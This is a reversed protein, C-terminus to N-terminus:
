MPTLNPHRGTPDDLVMLQIKYTGDDRLGMEEFTPKWENITVWTEDPKQVKWERAVIPDDDPDDDITYSEDAIVPNPNITFRAIPRNKESIITVTHTYLELWLSTGVHPNDRAKLEITYTGIGLSSIYNTSYQRLKDM